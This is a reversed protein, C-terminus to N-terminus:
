KMPKEQKKLMQSINPSILNKHYLLCLKACIKLVAFDMFKFTKKRKEIKKSRVDDITEWNKNIHLGILSKTIASYPSIM